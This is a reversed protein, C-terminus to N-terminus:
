EDDEEKDAGSSKIGLMIVKDFWDLKIIGDVGEVAEEIDEKRGECENWCSQFNGFM